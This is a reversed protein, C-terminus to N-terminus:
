AEAIARTLKLQVLSVAFILCFLMWGVAAAFGIDGSLFGTEYLYMVITMGRFNPGPGQFFVYPLEFLQLSGITGVLLLFVVVPQIGPLTVHWFQSWKGAGDVEAADYLERDVAQLAALLYIMGYGVSLWLAAILLAPLAFNPDGRWNIESGITPFLAGIARNVLGRRPALLLIFLIAVFVQGVLHSSFFALRFFNRFRLNKNNLLIALALSLPIQLFLFVVAFGLTNGVALWFLRDSLIFRYNDWGRHRFFGPGYAQEFSMSISRVMPYLLFVGLILIFPLIFLYPAARYQLKWFNPRSQSASM